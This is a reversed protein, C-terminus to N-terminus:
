QRGYSPALPFYVLCPMFVEAVAAKETEGRGSGGEGPGKGPKQEQPVTLPLSQPHSVSTSHPIPGRIEKDKNKLGAVRGGM